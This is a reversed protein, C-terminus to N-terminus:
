RRLLPLALQEAPSVRAPTLPDGLLAYTRLAEQCCGTTAFLEAQGAMTLAGVQRSAGSWLARHFGRQLADHGYLVGMGTPGWVAAAGGHPHLLLREDLTTGSYAPKQFAATLCTLELVIPLQSGNRLGGVDNLGLLFQEEPPAPPGTAAWQWHHSHGVYTVLGAGASLAAITAARAAIPDAIRGPGTATESPDYYVRTARVGAPLLAAGEEALAAFDGAADRRGDAEVANDAVFVARSRWSLGGATTEYSILKALLATLEAESKVPLRGLALDPLPDALPDEGDLQALCPECATEGLWPDVPAMYPPILNPAGRGTYDHPDVTGDGVLTVALPPTPWTAAAYRLFARIAAPDTQGSSWADYLRQVDVLSVSHGQSARLAVLPALADHLSAPAIYLVAAPAPLTGPPAPSVAPTHLTGPGALLYDRPGDDEFSDGAGLLRVPAAPDSIEYLAQGADRGSLAYRWRGAVGRFSAGQGDLRLQVPREWRLADIAVVSRAGGALLTLQLEADGAALTLPLTWNGAGTWSGSTELAATRLSLTHPGPTAAAGQLTIQLPGPAAPLAPAIPASLGMAPLGAGARLTAAFWHDGDPGALGSEYVAPARWTGRQLATDRLPASGPAVDRATMRQGAAPGVTIWYSDSLNWRDGPPPAYFRVELETGSGLLELPREGGRHWLQLRGPDSLDLGAAALAAGPVRQMGASAVVVRAAPQGFAPNTPGPAGSVGPGRQLWPTPAQGDLPHAGAIFAGAVSATRPGDGADYRPSVAIVALRTGAIRGERLLTIPASPLPADDAAPAVSVPDSVIATPQIALPEDGDVQLLVLRVPPADAGQALTTWGARQERLPPVGRWELRAGGAESIVRLRDAMPASGALGTPLLTVACVLTILSAIIRQLPSLM